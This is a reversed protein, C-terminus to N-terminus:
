PAREVSTVTGPLTAMGGALDLSAVLDGSDPQPTLTIEVPVPQGQLSTVYKLVLGESSRSIDEVKTVAGEMGTVQAAVQGNENTIDVKITVPAGADIAIDWSGIFAAASDASLATQASVAPATFLAFLMAGVASTIYSRIKM